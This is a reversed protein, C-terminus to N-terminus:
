NSVKSRKKNGTPRYCHQPTNNSIYCLNSQIKIVNELFNVILEATQIKETLLFCYVVSIFIKLELSLM